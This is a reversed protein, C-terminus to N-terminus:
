QYTARALADRVRPDRLMVADTSNDHYGVEMITADFESDTERDDIEGFTGGLTVNSGRNFWNLLGFQGAQAVLDDNIERGLITALLVQNPTPENTHDGLLDNWLGLVGRQNPAGGTANTHFSVFLRDSLVGEAERNMYEAYRPALRVTADRDSSATRYVSTSIGQSRDVHWM